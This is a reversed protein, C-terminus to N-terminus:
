DPRDPDLLQWVGARARHAGARRAARVLAPDVRPGPARGGVGAPPGAGAPDRDDPAPTPDRAREDAACGVTGGTGSAQRNQLITAPWIGAVLIWLSSRVIAKMSM